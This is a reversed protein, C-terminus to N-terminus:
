ADNEIEFLESEKVFKRWNIDPDVPTIEYIVTESTKYRNELKKVGRRGTKRVEIGDYVYHIEPPSVEDHNLIEGNEDLIFDTTM